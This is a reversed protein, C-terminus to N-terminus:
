QPQACARANSPNPRDRLNAATQIALIRRLQPCVASAQIALVSDYHAGCGREDALLHSPQPAQDYCRPLLVSPMGNCSLAGYLNWLVFYPTRLVDIDTYQAHNLRFPTSHDPFGYLVILLPQRRPGSGIHRPRWHASLKVPPIVLKQWCHPPLRGLLPTPPTANPEPRCPSLRYASMHWHRPGPVMVRCAAGHHHTATVQRAGLSRISPIEM